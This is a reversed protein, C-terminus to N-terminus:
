ALAAAARLFLAPGTVGGAGDRFFFIAALRARAPFDAALRVAAALFDAVLSAPGEAASRAVARLATAARLRRVLHIAFLGCLV